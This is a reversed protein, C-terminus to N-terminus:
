EGLAHRIARMATFTDPVKGWVKKKRKPFSPDVACVAQWLTRCRPMCSCHSAGTSLVISYAADWTRKSPADLFSRLRAKVVPDLDGLINSTQQILTDVPPVLTLTM